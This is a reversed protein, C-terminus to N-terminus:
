VKIAHDIAHMSHYACKANQIILVVLLKKNVSGWGMRHGITHVTDVQDVVLVRHWDEWGEGLTRGIDTFTLAM